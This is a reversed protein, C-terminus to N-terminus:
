MEAPRRASFGCKKDTPGRSLFQLKGDLNNETWVLIPSEQGFGSLFYAFTTQSASLKKTQVESLFHSIRDPIWVLFSQRAQQVDSWLNKPADTRVGFGLALSRRRQGRDRHLVDKAKSSRREELSIESRASLGFLVFSWSRKARM